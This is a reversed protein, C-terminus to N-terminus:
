LQGHELMIGAKSAHFSIVHADADVKNNSMITSGACLVSLWHLHQEKVGATRMIKVHGQWKAAILAVDTSRKDQASYVECARMKERHPFNRM